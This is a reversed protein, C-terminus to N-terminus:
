ADRQLESTSNYLVKPNTPKNVCAFFDSYLPPLELSIEHKSRVRIKPLFGLHFHQSCNQMQFMLSISM